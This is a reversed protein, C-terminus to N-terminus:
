PHGRLLGAPRHVVQGADPAVILEQAAAYEEGEAEGRVVLTASADTSRKVVALAIPGMEYHLAASTVRGVQKEGGDDARQLVPSGAAPLTHTSGDLQLMVLRRPPHGLNHVRAVTEQGKYCGKSLHVATRLLDLEHPIAKDDTASRRRRWRVRSASARLTLRPLLPTSSTPGSSTNSGLVSWAPTSNRPCRRM